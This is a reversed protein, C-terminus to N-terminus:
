KTLDKQLGVGIEFWRVDIKKQEKDLTEHEKYSVYGVAETPNNQTPGYYQIGFEGDRGGTNGDGDFDTQNGTTFQTVVYPMDGTDGLMKYNDAIGNETNDTLTLKPYITSDSGKVVTVDYWNSDAFSATLTETVNDGNVEVALVADGALDIHDFELVEDDHNKEVMYGAYGVARGTFLMNETIKEVLNDKYGGYVITNQEEKEYEPARLTSILTLKGFDSYALGVDKGYTELDIDFDQVLIVEQANEDTEWNDIRELASEYMHLAALEQARIRVEEDNQDDKGLEQKAQELEEKTVVHYSHFKNNDYQIKLEAKLKEKIDALSLKETSLIEIDHGGKDDYDHGYASDIDSLVYLYSKIDHVSYTNGAFDTRMLDFEMIADSESKATLSVRNIKNNDDVRFVLKNQGQDGDPVFFMESDEIRFRKFTGLEQYILDAKDKIHSILDSALLNDIITKIQAFDKDKFLLEGHEDTVYGSMILAHMFQEYDADTQPTKDTQHLWYNMNAYMADVLNMGFEIVGRKSTATRGQASSAVQVSSHLDDLEPLDLGAASYNNEIVKSRKLGNDINSAVQLNSQRVDMSNESNNPVNPVNPAAFNGGGSGGGCAALALVSALISVRKM